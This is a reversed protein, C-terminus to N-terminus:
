QRINVLGERMSLLSEKEAILEGHEEVHLHQMPLASSRESFETLISVTRCLLSSDKFLSNEFNIIYCYQGHLKYLSCVKHVSPDINIIADCLNDFDNFYYTSVGSGGSRVRAKIRKGNKIKETTKPINQEVKSITISIGDGVSQAEIVIQGSYPNFGTEERITEMIKFLFSHLETSNNSLKKVNIDFGSLDDGTLTVKVKNEALREIRM